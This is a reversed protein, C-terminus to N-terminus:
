DAYIIRGCSPCRAIQVSSKAQQIEAPTLQSGCITCCQDEVGAVAVGKKSKRLADYLAISEPLIQQVIAQREVKLRESTNLLEEQEHIYQAHSSKAEELAADLVSKDQNVKLQQDEMRIMMDLQENELSKLSSKLSAIEQQLDSLERPNKVAGGYLSSESIEIKVRKDKSKAELAALDTSLRNMEGLSADYQNQATQVTQSNELIQQIQLNRAQIQELQRDLKQLQYLYFSQNSM